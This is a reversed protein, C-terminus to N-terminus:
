QVIMKGSIVDEGANITYLCIGKQLDKASVTIKHRGTTLLDTSKEYLIQGAQNYVKLSVITPQSLELEITTKDSFPNPHNDSVYFPSYEDINVPYGEPPPNSGCLNYDFSLQFDQIYKFQVPGMPDDPNIGCYTFPIIYKTYDYYEDQIVTKSMNMYYSQWMGDSLKTVNTARPFHYQYMS